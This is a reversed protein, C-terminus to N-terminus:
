GTVPTALLQNAQTVNGVDARTCDVRGAHLHAVLAPTIARPTDIALPPSMM